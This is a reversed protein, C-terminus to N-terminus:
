TAGDGLLAVAKETCCTLLELQAKLFESRSEVKM